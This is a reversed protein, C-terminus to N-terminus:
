APRDAKTAGDRFAPDSARTLLAVMRGFLETQKALAPTDTPEQGTMSLLLPASTFYGVVVSYLALVLYPLEDLKWHDVAPTSELMTLSRTMTPRLWDDLILSLHEGGSMMEYQVLRPLNPRRGLLEMVESVLRNPDQYSAEGEALFQTLLQLVPSIGRELVAAYISEKNDFHNYLSPIRIGVRDAVHRLTTGAYGRDAFCSEAADLIREATEAGKRTTRTAILHTSTSSAISPNL